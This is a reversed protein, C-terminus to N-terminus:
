RSRQDTEPEDLSPDTPAQPADRANADEAPSTHTSAGDPQQVTM